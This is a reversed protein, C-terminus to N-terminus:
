VLWYFISYTVGYTSTNKLLLKNNSVEASVPSYQGSNFWNILGQQGLGFGYVRMCWQTQQLIAIGHVATKGAEILDFTATRNGSLWGSRTHINGINLNSDKLVKLEIGTNTVTWYTSSIDPQMGINNNTCRYLVNNYICYQNVVYQTESNWADSVVSIDGSGGGNALEDIADQVNDATLGSTTNDYGINEAVLDPSPPANTVIFPKGTAELEARHALWYSYTYEPINASGGDANEFKQTTANYLLTQGNTPNTISVDTLDNLETAGGSGGSPVSWNGDACLYKNTETRDPSERQTAYKSAM